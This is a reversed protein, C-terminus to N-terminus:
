PSAAAPTRAVSATDAGNTTITGGTISTTGGQSVRVGVAGDGNTTIKANEVELRSGAGVVDVGHAELGIQAAPFQLVPPNSGTVRYGTTIESGTVIVTGANTVLVGASSPGSTRNITNVLTVTSGSGSVVAGPSNPQYTFIGYGSFDIRGGADAWVGPSNAGYTASTAGNSVQISSGAGRALMGPSNAIVTGGYYDGTAIAGGSITITGGGTAFLGASGNSYINVYTNNLALSSGAGSAVAGPTNDGYSFTNLNNLTIAGGVDAFAASSGVGYTTVDTRTLFIAGGSAAYVGHANDLATNVGSDILTVSSGTGLAGVGYAGAGNTYVSTYSGTIVGGGDAYLGHGGTGYTSVTAGNFPAGAVIIAGGGTAYMGYGSGNAILNISTGSYTGTGSVEVVPAPGVSERATFAPDSCSGSSISVAGPAPPACQALAQASPLLLMAATALFFRHYCISSLLGTKLSVGASLDFSALAVPKGKRDACM